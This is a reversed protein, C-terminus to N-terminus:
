LPTIIAKKASVIMVQAPFSMRGDPFHERVAEEIEEAIRSLQAPALKAVKARLSDSIEVRLPWFQRTTLAAQIQFSVARENVDAAGAAVFLRALKGGEAFRFAGPADPDEPPSETYRSVVETVTSFFPNAEKMGWVAFAVRGGPATVRLIEGLAASTDPFFMAGLRSVVVDFENDHFPLSDALCQRFEINSLKRRDAEREASAIMEAVADTCVVRGSRGVVEAITLSPEGTGGAIDLVNQGNGIGAAEILAQTIPAFMARITDANKEWYPASGRWEELVNREKDSMTKNYAALPDPRM